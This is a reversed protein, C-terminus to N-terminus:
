DLNYLENLEERCRRYVPLDLGREQALRLVEEVLTNFEGRRGAELDRFLSSTTAADFGALLAVLREPTSGVLRLGEARALLLLERALNRFLRLREEKALIERLTCGYLSTVVAVPSVFIFKEWVVEVVPHVVRAEVGGNRFLDCFADLGKGDGCIDGCVMRRPGGEWRVRGPAALHAGVYVCGDLIRKGHLLREMIRGNGVGNLLSLVWAEGSLAPKWFALATELSDSKVALVMIHLPAELQRPSTVVAGPRYVRVGLSSEVKLGQKQLAHSHRRTVLLSVHVRSDSQVGEMFAAAFVGGVAGSGVFGVNLRRGGFEKLLSDVQVM